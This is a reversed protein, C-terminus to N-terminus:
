LPLKRRNTGSIMVISFSSESKDGATEMTGATFL